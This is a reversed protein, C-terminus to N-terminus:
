SSIITLTFIFVGIDVNINIYELFLICGSNCALIYHLNVRQKLVTLSFNCAEKFLLLM